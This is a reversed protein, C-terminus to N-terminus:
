KHTQQMNQCNFGTSGTFQSFVNKTFRGLQNGAPSFTSVATTYGNRQAVGFGFKKSDKWIMQTFENTAGSSSPKHFNYNKEEEMWSHTAMRAVDELSFWGKVSFLNEGTTRNLYPCSYDINGKHTYYNACRFAIDNLSEDMRLAPVNHKARFDNTVRLANDQYKMSVQFGLCLQLQLLTLALAWVIATLRFDM